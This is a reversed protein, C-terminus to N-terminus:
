LNLLPQFNQNNFYTNKMWFAVNSMGFLDFWIHDFRQNADAPNSLFAVALTTAVVTVVYAPLLRKLRRSYFERM